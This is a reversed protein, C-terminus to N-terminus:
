FQVFPEAGSFLVAVLALFLHCSRMLLQDLNLTIECLHIRFYGREFNCLHYQTFHTGSNFISVFKFSIMDYVVTGFRFYNLM